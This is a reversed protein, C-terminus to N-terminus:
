TWGRCRRRDAVGVGGVDADLKADLHKADFVFPTLPSEAEPTRPQSMAKPTAPDPRVGKRHKQKGGGPFLERPLAKIPLRSIDDM